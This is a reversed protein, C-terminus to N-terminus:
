RATDEGHRDKKRAEQANPKGPLERLVSLLAQQVDHETNVIQHVRGELRRCEEASLAQGSLAVIPIASLEDRRRLERIVAFGNIDKMDLDVLVLAPTDEELRAFFAEESRVQEVKWGEAALPAYLDEPAAADDLLLARPAPGRSRYRALVKSLRPWRIPKTLYDAAGLSYALGKEQVITTMIVPIDATASDAKLASLVAWGDMHPMMVDLLIACPELRRAYDLGTAGDAATQVAYGERALFRSLLARAHPDDDIVLVATGRAEAAVATGEEEAKRTAADSDAPLRLEFMTGKGAESEVKIEGGLMDAFARTISLGLGTGGFRRTTSADAQSFRRFLKALEERSMGIGTDRVRFVLTGDDGAGERAVELTVTGRETFKAANSLLNILSQRVKVPDSHMTGLDPAHEVRLANENKAVLAEVTAGLEQVLAAVDFRELHVDMKGAEIKSIDLVDNILSLLHRANSDIKRLDDLMQTLGRDEAEEELMEGYGIVATLPTRLEHSMNAIFQSKARNAEEADEKAAALDREYQKRVTIDRVYATFYPASRQAVSTIALEVPFRTGDRRLAEIEIRKGLLRGKGTELLRAIGAYHRARHEEPIILEPMTRGLVEDRTYGFTDEAAANWEVIRSDATISIVCDIATALIAAKLSESERLQEEARKRRLYQGIQHGLTSISELFDDDFHQWRRSFFEM